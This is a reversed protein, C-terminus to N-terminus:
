LLLYSSHSIISVFQRLFFCCFVEGFYSQPPRWPPHFFRRFRGLGIRLFRSNQRIWKRKKKDYAHWCKNEGYLLQRWRVSTVIASGGHFGNLFPRKDPIMRLLEEQSPTPRANTHDTYHTPFDIITPVTTPKTPSDFVTLDILNTPANTPAALPITSHDLDDPTITSAPLHVTPLTPATTPAPPVTPVITPATPVITSVTPVITFADPTGVLVPSSLVPFCFNKIAGLLTRATVCLEMFDEEYEFLSQARRHVPVTALMTRRVDAFSAPSFNNSEAIRYYNLHNRLNNYETRQAVSFEDFDEKRTVLALLIDEVSCFYATMLDLLHQPVNVGSTSDVTDTHQPQAITILDINAGGPNTNTGLRTEVM